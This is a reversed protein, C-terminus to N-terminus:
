STIVRLERGFHSALRGDAGATAHREDGRFSVACRSDLPARPECRM